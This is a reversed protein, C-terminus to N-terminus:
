KSGEIALLKRQNEQYIQYVTQNDNANLLYPLMVEDVTAMGAEVIALQAEIWDKLIRWAVKRAHEIGKYQASNPLKGAQQQKHIAAAVGQVNAPLRFDKLGYETKITFAVGSPEGAEYFSAVTEAGGRALLSVVEGATKHAAISTTYNLLPM